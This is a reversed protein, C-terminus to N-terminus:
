EYRLADVPKLKSARYAPILGALGGIIFSLILASVVLRLSVNTFGGRLFMVDGLFLPMLASFFAGLVVGFVGGVLGVLSSNLLFILMIDFNKAGIAKMVGIDKTKELVSTFMTNAVGVAGVLLSVAAIAGLFITISASTEAITERMSLPSSITYDKDDNLVHRSIMLKADISEIVSNVVEESDDSVKVTIRSYEASDIDELIERASDELMVVARDDDGQALIGVIKFTKDNIIVQRNLALPQKFMEYVVSYGLIVSNHDAPGLVRGEAVESTTIDLWVLPDVGEVNIRISESLYYLEANGSVSGAVSLVNEIPRIVQVDKITLPDQEDSGTGAMGLPMGGGGGGFGRFAFSARSGGPSITILDAGFEAFREGVESSLGEGLSVIAVVASVGIVIGIITLWSRLKSHVLFNWSLGFSTALKM